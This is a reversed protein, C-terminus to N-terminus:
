GSKATREAPAGGPQRGAEPSLLGDLLATIIARHRPEGTIEDTKSVLNGDLRMCVYGHVLSWLSIAQSEVSVRPSAIVSLESVLSDYIKDMASNLAEDTNDLLDRSWLLRFRNPYKLGYDIITDSFCRIRHEPGSSSALLKSQIRRELSIFIEAALVTLLARRSAFHNAPASHAVGTRRAIGRITVGAAGTEDLLTMAAKLLERRLDGRHYSDPARKM